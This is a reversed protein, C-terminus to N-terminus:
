QSEFDFRIANCEMSPLLLDCLLIISEMEFACLSVCVCVSASLHNPLIRTTDSCISSQMQRRTSLVVKNENNASKVNLASCVCLLLTLEVKAELKAPNM